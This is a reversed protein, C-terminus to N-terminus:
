DETVARRPELGCISTQNQVSICPGGASLCVRAPSSESEHLHASERLAGESRTNERSLRSVHIDGVRGKSSDEAKEPYNGTSKM